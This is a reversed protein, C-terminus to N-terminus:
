VDNAPIKKLVAFASEDDGVTVTEFRAGPMRPFPDLGLALSEATLAGFDIQGNVIPDPVDISDPGVGFSEAGDSFDVDIESTLPAEFPELTVTCVQTVVAEVSGVVNLRALTGTVRFTGKLDRIAPIKFDKALAVCEEPTAEVTVTAARGVLRDVRTPRRLPGVPDHTM